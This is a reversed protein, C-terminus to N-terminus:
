NKEVVDTVLSLLRDNRDQPAAEQQLRSKMLFASRSVQHPARFGWHMEGHRASPTVVTYTGDTAISLVRFGIVLDNHM